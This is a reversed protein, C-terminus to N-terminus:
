LFAHSAGIATLAPIIIISDTGHAMTAFHTDTIATVFIFVMIKTDFTM